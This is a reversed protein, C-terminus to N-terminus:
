NGTGIQVLNSGKVNSMLQVLEKGTESNALLGKVFKAKNRVNDYELHFLHIELEHISKRVEFIKKCLNNYKTLMGRNKSSIKYDGMEIMKKFGLTLARDNSNAQFNGHVRGPQHQTLYVNSFLLGNYSNSKKRAKVDALAKKYQTMPKTYGALRDINFMVFYETKDYDIRVERKDINFKGDPKENFGQALKNFEKYSSTSRIGSAAIIAEEFKAWQEDAQEQIKGLEESKTQIQSEINEKQEELMLEVMDHQNLSVNVSTQVAAEKM